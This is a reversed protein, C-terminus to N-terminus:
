KKNTGKYNPIAEIEDILSAFVQIGGQIKGLFERLSEMDGGMPAANVEAKLKDLNDNILETLSHTEM